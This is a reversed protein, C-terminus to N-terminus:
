LGPILIDMFCCALVWVLYSKVSILQVTPGFYNRCVMCVHGAAIYM